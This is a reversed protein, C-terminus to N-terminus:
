LQGAEVFEHWDTELLNEGRDQMAQHQGCFRGAGNVARRCQCRTYHMTFGSPGRGTYRHTDRKWVTAVCRRRESM